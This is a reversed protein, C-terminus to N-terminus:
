WCSFITKMIIVVVFFYFTYFLLRIINCSVCFKICLSFLCGLACRLSEAELCNYIHSIKSQEKLDGDVPM